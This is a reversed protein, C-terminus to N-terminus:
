DGRSWPGRTESIENALDAIEKTSGGLERIPELTLEALRWNGMRLASKAIIRQADLNSRDYSLSRRGASLADDYREDDYLGMGLRSWYGSLTKGYAGINKFQARIYSIAEKPRGRLLSEDMAALCSDPMAERYHACVHAFLVHARNHDGRWRALMALVYWGRPETEPQGLLMGAIIQAPEYLGVRLYEQALLQEVASYKGPYAKRLANTLPQLAAPNDQSARYGFEWALEPFRISAEIGQRTGDRSSLLLGAVRQSLEPDALLVHIDDPTDRQLRLGVAIRFLRAHTSSPRLEIARTLAKWAGENDGADMRIRGLRYFAHHSHAFRSAVVHSAEEAGLSEMSGALEFSRQDWAGVLLSGGLVLGIASGLLTAPRSGFSTTLSRETWSAARSRDMMAAVLLFPVLAGAMELSFDVVEHLAVAVMAMAFVAAEGRRPWKWLPRLLLFLLAVLFLAAFPAGQAVIRDLVINEAFEQRVNTKATQQLLVVPLSGAGQGFLLGDELHPLVEFFMSLKPDKRGVIAMKGFEAEITPLAVVATATVAIVIKLAFDRRRESQLIHKEIRTSKRRMPRRIVTAAGVFVMGLLGARSPTLALAIVHALVVGSMVRQDLVTRVSVLSTAALALGMTLLAAVHNPNVFTFNRLQLRADLPVLPGSWNAWALHWIGALVLPLVALWRRWRTIVPAIEHDALVLGAILSLSAATLYLAAQFAAEAPAIAIPLFDLAPLNLAARSADSMAVSNAHVMAVISHPLPIVAILSWVGLLWWLWAYPNVVRRVPRFPVVGLWAVVGLATLVALPEQGVGGTWFAAVLVAGVLAARAVASGVKESRSRSISREPEPLPGLSGRMSGQGQTDTERM